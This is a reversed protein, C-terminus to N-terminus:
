DDGSHSATTQHNITEAFNNRNREEGLSPLGIRKIGFYFAVSIPGQMCERQEIDFDFFRSHFRKGPAFWDVQWWPVHRRHDSSLLHKFRCFFLVRIWAIVSVGLAETKSSDSCLSLQYYRSSQFLKRRFDIHALRQVRQTDASALQMLDLQFHVIVKQILWFFNFLFLM